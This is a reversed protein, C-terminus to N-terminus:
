KEKKAEAKVEELATKNLKKLNVGFVKCPKEFNKYDGWSSYADESLILEVLLAKIRQSKMGDASQRLAEENEFGRRVLVGRDYDSQDIVFQLITDTVWAENKGAEIAEVIQALALPAVKERAKEEWVEAEKEEATKPKNAKIKKKAWDHGKEALHKDIVSVLVIKHAKGNGDQAILIDKAPLDKLLKSYKQTKPDQYCIKNLEAYSSNNLTDNWFLNRSKGVPLVTHGKKEFKATQEKWAWSKKKAFCDPDTCVDAKKIDPFLDSQNGTRKSCTTCAGADVPLSADKPDFPAKSLDLTFTDRVYEAADQYSMPADDYGSCTVKGAAKKQLGAPIRAILLATSATLKEDYFLQRAEPILSCLRMRQYIYSKSKGVRAAIEEAGKYGYKKMLAEYGEAEELPHLDSRQLKEIVQIEM